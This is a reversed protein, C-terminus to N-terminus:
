KVVPVIANTLDNGVLAQMSLVTPSPVGGPIPITVLQVGISPIPPATQVFFPAPLYWDGYGPIAVPPRLLTPNPSFAWHVSSNPAGVAKLHAVGGPALRGTLYLHPHFEDAGIDPAAGSTRPDGEDDGPPMPAYTTGADRCPSDYRLHFDGNIRDVMKSDVDINGMGPSGGEINSYTANHAFLQQRNGRVICNVLTGTWTYSGFQANDVITNNAIFATHTIGNAQNQAIVNNAVLGNTKVAALDLGWRDIRNHMIRNGIILGGGHIAIGGSPSGISRSCSPFPGCALRDGLGVLENATIENGEIVAGPGAYIGAGEAYGYQAMQKYDIRNGTIVNGVIHVAAPAYVGGGRVPEFLGQNAYTCGFGSCQQFTGPDVMGSGNRITFGELRIGAATLMFVPGRRQGDVVTLKPGRDSRITIPRACVVNEFYTGPGVAVIDSPAAASVAAQITPYNLPVRHVQQAVGHAAIVVVLVVARM